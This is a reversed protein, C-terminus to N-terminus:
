QESRIEYVTINDTSINTVIEFSQGCVPCTPYFNAYDGTETERKLTFSVAQQCSCKWHIELTFSSPVPHYNQFEDDETM